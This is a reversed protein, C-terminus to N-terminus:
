ADPSWKMFSYRYRAISHQHEDYLTLHLAEQADASSGVIQIRLLAVASPAQLTRLSISTTIARKPLPHCVDYAGTLLKHEQELLTTAQRALRICM